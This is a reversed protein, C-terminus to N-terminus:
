AVHPWVQQIVTLFFATTLGFLIMGNLAELAGSFQWHPLLYINAHGYATMAGLSYFMAMKREPLAGLLLFAAAWVMAEVGHLVPHETPPRCLFDVALFHWVGNREHHRKVLREVYHYVCAPPHHYRSGLVTEM